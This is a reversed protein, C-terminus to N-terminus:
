KRHVISVRVAKFGKDDEILDFQVTDGEILSKFGDKNVESYHVFIDKDVNETCIFGYGKKDCFWKVVGLM